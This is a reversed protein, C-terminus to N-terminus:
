KGQRDHAANGVFICLNLLLHCDSPFVLLTSGKDAQTDPRILGYCYPQYISVQRWGSPLSVETHSTFKDVTGPSKWVFGGIM